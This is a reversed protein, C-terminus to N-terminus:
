GRNSLFLSLKNNLLDVFTYLEKGKRWYPVVYLENKGELTVNNPFSQKIFRLYTPYDLGLVRAPAVHYSGGNKTNFPFNSYDLPVIICRSPDNENVEQWTFWKKKIM